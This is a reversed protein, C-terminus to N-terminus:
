RAILVKAVRQAAGVSLKAFYLGPRLTGQEALRFLHDGPDLVGASRELVRRGSIDLLEIRVPASSAVTFALDLAGAAPNPRAGFHWPTSAPSGDVDVATWTSVEGIFRETGGVVVGLRYDYREGLQLYSDELVLHREGNPILSAIAQWAGGSGRRYATFSDMPVGFTQWEVRVHDSASTTGSVSAGVSADPDLFLVWAGDIGNYPDSASRGGAVLLQERVSDFAVADDQIPLSGGDVAITSWTPNADLSLAFVGDAAIVLMRDNAADYVARFSEPRAGPPTGSTALASWIGEASLSLVHVDAFGGLTDAGGFALVRDRVPDYIGTEGWRGGYSGAALSTWTNAGVDYSWTDTRPRPKNFATFRGGHVILRRHASDFVTLADARVPPSSPPSLLTWASAGDSFSWLDAYETGATYMEAQTGGGFVLTRSGIEDRAARAWYRIGPGGSFWFQWPMDTSFPRIWVADPSGLAVSWTQRAPDVLAVHGYRAPPRSSDAVLVTWAPSADLSLSWLDTANFGTGAGGFRLFRQHLRDLWGIPAYRTPPRPDSAGAPIPTWVASDAPTALSLDLAWADNYRRTPDPSPGGGPGEGGVLIMRQRVSDLAAIASYRAYAVASQPTLFSWTMPDTLSLAWTEDYFATGLVAVGGYFLMRDRFPDYLASSLSRGAPATGGIAPASWSPTGSLSLVYVANSNCCISIAGGFVIIRNRVPDLVYAFSHLNRPASGILDHQVRTLPSASLDMSWLKGPTEPNPGSSMTFGWIRDHAADYVWTGGPITSTPLPTWSPTPAGAVAWVSGNALVLARGRRTDYITANGSVAPPGLEIWRPTAARARHPAMLVLACALAGLVFERRSSPRHLRVGRISAFM